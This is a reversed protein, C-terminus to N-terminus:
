KVNKMSNVATAWDLPQIIKEGSFAIKGSPHWDCSFIKWDRPQGALQQPQGHNMRDVTYLRPVGDDPDNMSFMVRRNDPSFTFDPHVGKTAAV